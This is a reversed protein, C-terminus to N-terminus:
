YNIQNYGNLFWFELSQDKFDDIRTLLQNGIKSTPEYEALMKRQEDRMGALGPAHASFFDSHLRKAFQDASQKLDAYFVIESHKNIVSSWPIEDNSNDKFPKGDRNLITHTQWNITAKDTLGRTIHMTGGYEIHCLAATQGPQIKYIINKLALIFEVVPTKFDSQYYNGCDTDNLMFCLTPQLGYWAFPFEESLDSVYNEFEKIDSPGLLYSISVTM